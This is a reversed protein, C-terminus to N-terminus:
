VPRSQPAYWFFVLLLFSLILITFITITITSSTSTSPTHKVAPDGCATCIDKEVPEIFTKGLNANVADHLRNVILVAEEQNRPRAHLQLERYHLKCKECPLLYNLSHFLNEFADIDEETPNSPYFEAITHFTMWFHPGWVTPDNSVKM